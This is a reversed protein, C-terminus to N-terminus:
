QLHSLERVQRTWTGRKMLPDPFPLCASSVIFLDASSDIFPDITPNQKQRAVTKAIVIELVVMAAAPFSVHTPDPAVMPPVQVGSVLVVLSLL